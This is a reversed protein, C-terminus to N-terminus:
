KGKTDRPEPADRTEPSAGPQPQRRSPHAAAAHAYVTQAFPTGRDIGSRHRPSSGAFPAASRGESCTGYGCKNNCCDSDVTCSEGPKACAQAIGPGALAVLVFASAVLSLANRNIVM